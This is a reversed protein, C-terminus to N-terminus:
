KGIAPITRNILLNVDEQLCQRHTEDKRILLFNGLREVLLIEQENEHISPMIQRLVKLFKFQRSGPILM